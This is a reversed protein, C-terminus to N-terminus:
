IAGGVELPAGDSSEPIEELALEPDRMWRVIQFSDNEATSQAGARRVQVAVMILGDVPAPEWNISYVWPTDQEVTLTSLDSTMTVNMDTVPDPPILGLAIEEMITEAIMQAETLGQAQQANQFGLGVLQGLLTLSVALITLALIVEILTFGQKRNPNTALM